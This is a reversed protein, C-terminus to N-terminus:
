TKFVKSKGRHIRLVTCKQIKLVYKVNMSIIFIHQVMAYYLLQYQTLDNNM